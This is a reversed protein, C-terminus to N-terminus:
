SEGIVGLDSLAAIRRVSEYRNRNNEVTINMLCEHNMAANESTAQLPEVFWGAVTAGSDLAADFPDSAFATSLAGSGVVFVSAGDSGSAVHLLSESQVMKVSQQLQLAMLAFAGNGGDQSPMQPSLLHSTLPFVISLTAHM